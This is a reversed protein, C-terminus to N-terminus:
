RRAEDRERPIAYLLCEMTRYSYHRVYFDYGELRDMLYRPLDIFHDLTHYISVALQPRFRTITEMMGELAEPEAGELDLKIYDVREVRESAVMDDIRECDFTEVHISAPLARTKSQNNLVMGAMPNGDAVIPFDATGTHNWIAKARLPLRGGFREFIPAYDARLHRRGTPEYNYVTCDFDSMALFYQLETGCAMGGNIVVAGPALRVLDTYQVHGFVHALYDDLFEPWKGAFIRRYIRQSEADALSRAVGEIEPARRKLFATANHPWAEAVTHLQTGDWSFGGVKTLHGHIVAPTFETRGDGDIQPFCHVFFNWYGWSDHGPVLLFYTRRDLGDPLNAAIQPWAISSTILAVRDDDIDDPQKVFGRFGDGKGLSALLRRTYRPRSRGVGDRRPDFDLIAYSLGDPVQTPAFLFKSM